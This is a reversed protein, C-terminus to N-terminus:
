DASKKLPDLRSLLALAACLAACVLFYVGYKSFYAGTALVLAAVLYKGSKNPSLANRALERRNKKGPAAPPLSDLASLLKYFGFKDMVRLNAKEGDLCADANKEKGFPSIIIASSAGERETALRCSVAEKLSFKEDFPRVFVLTESIRLFGKEKVVSLKKGLAAALYDLAFDEGRVAFYMACEDALKETGRNESLSKKRMLPSSVALTITVAVLVTAYTEAVFYRAFVFAAGFIAALLAINDAYFAFRSKM